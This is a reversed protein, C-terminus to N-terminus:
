GIDEEIWERIEDFQIELEGDYIGVPVPEDLGCIRPYDEGEFPYIILRKQYPDLIWYERVGAELYKAMKTGTDLKRSSPSVVELVFDPAGYIGWKKLKDTDCAIVLDPQIMTKDDCDLQVDVPSMIAQCDGGRERIFNAIQRHVEGIVRQHVVTPAKMEYFRGDILEVRPDDPLDRYDKITYEGDHRVQYLAEENLMPVNKSKSLLQELALLMDYRLSQANGSFFEKVTELPIECMESIQEDTYGKEKKRRILQEITM